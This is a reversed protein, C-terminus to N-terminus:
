KSLITRLRDFVMEAYGLNGQQSLHAGDEILFDQLKYGRQKMMAPLDIIPARVSKAVAKIAPNYARRNAGYSKGNGQKTRLRTPHNVIFVCRGKRARAARHFERLNAAFEDVGVRPKRSWERVSADNLGFQALVVGPMLSLVDGDFRDLGQASTNGGIGRNYLKYKGPKWANLKAQLLTPWRDGLAQRRALTISDGFCIVNM